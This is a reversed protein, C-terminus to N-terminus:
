HLIHLDFKVTKAITHGGIEHWSILASALSHFTLDLHGSDREIFDHLCRIFSHGLTLVRPTGM